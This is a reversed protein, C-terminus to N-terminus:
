VFPPLLSELIATIIPPCVMNGFLDYKNVGTPLVFHEPFGCLRKLEKENLQRITNGVLVALKSSDTATLTPSLEDPHLIKSIPFSLKGKAINYGITLNENPVRKGNVLDKPYEMVLYKKNVLDRLDNELEEHKVFTKIDELSLPIGDMWKINKESAWKKKRRELLLTNLISKQRDSIKGHYEIDWSHINSTGGRKDKISKGLLADKPISLLKSLFEEPLSTSIDTMDIVDKLLVKDRPNITIRIERSKCGIIFVRKRDQALGTQSSNIPIFCMNYGIDQFDKIITKLVEGNEINEINSVNELILYEPSSEKCIRLVEYILDGRGEDKLGEKKGASSFPQCPFGGCLIDFYPLNKITRVDCAENNEHFNHNYTKLADKKIDATKVCQFSYGPYKSQFAEIGYRFGGIGAFLDIYTLNNSYPKQETKALAEAVKKEVIREIMGDKKCPNKRKKHSELHGKQKFIRECINCVHVPMKNNHETYLLIM